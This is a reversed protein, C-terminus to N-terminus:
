GGRREESRVIRIGLLWFLFGFGVAATREACSTLGYSANEVNCGTHIRGDADELAAGVRFKSYPAHAHERAALAAALLNAPAGPAVDSSENMEGSNYCLWLLTRIM